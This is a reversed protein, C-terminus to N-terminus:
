ILIQQYYCKALSRQYERAAQEYEWLPIHFRSHPFTVYFINGMFLLLNTWGMRSQVNPIHWPTYAVM